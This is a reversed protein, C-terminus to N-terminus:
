FDHSGLVKGTRGDFAVLQVINVFLYRHVATGAYPESITAGYSMKGDIVPTADTDTKPMLLRVVVAVRLYRKVTPAQSLPVQFKLDLNESRLYASRFALGYALYRSDSVVAKVGYANSAVYKRTSLEAQVLDVSQLTDSLSEGDYVGKPTINVYMTETDANYSYEVVSGKSVGRENTVFALDGSLPLGGSLPRIRAALMREHFKETTEFEGQEPHEYRKVLEEYISM